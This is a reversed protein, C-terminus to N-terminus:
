IHEKKYIIFSYVMTGISAFLAGAIFMLLALAKPLFPTIIIIIGFLVMMYGGFRNTKLWVNESALTWPTRVGIFWNRKVKGLFNGIVVLLLGVLAPVIVKIQVPYGLNFYGSAIYVALLVFVIASKFFYYVGSFEAYRQSKPDLWPLSLFILYIATILSPITFAGGARGMYGNPQGQIDWHTVVQAPFHAYFYFAFIWGVLILALPIVETKISLKIPNTM